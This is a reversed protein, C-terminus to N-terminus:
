YILHPIYPLIYQYKITVNDVARTIFYWISYPDAIKPTKLKRALCFFYMKNRGCVRLLFNYTESYIVLIINLVLINVFNKKTAEIIFCKETM